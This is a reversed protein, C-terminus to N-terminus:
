ATEFVFVYVFKHGQAYKHLSYVDTHTYTYLHM